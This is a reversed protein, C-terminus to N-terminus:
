NTARIELSSLWQVSLYRPRKTIIDQNIVLKMLGSSSCITIEGILLFVANKVIYNRYSPLTVFGPVILQCTAKASQVSFHKALLQDVMKRANNSPVMLHANEM